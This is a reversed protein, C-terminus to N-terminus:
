DKAPDKDDVETQHDDGAIADVVPDLNHLYCPDEIM